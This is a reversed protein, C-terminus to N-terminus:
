ADTNLRAGLYSDLEPAGRSALVNNVWADREHGILFLDWVCASLGTPTM